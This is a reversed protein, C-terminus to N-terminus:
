KNKPQELFAKKQNSLSTKEYFDLDQSNYCNKLDQIFEAWLIIFAHHLEKIQPQMFLAAEVPNKSQLCAELYSQFLVYDSGFRQTNATLSQADCILIQLTKVFFDSQHIVSSISQTIGLELLNEYEIALCKRFNISPQIYAFIINKKLANCIRILNESNYFDEHLILYHGEKDTGFSTVLLSTDDSVNFRLNKNVKLLYLKNKIFSLVLPEIKQINKNKIFGAYWQQYHSMYANIFMPDNMLYDIQDATLGIEKYVKNNFKAWLEELKINWKKVLNAFIGDEKQHIKEHGFEWTPDYLNVSPIILQSRFNDAFLLIPAFFLVLFINKFVM